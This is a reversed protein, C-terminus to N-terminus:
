TKGFKAKAAAICADKAEGALADCKEVAVKLDAENMDEAAAKRATGVEKGLKASALGKAQKVDRDAKAVQRNFYDAGISGKTDAFVTTLDAQGDKILTDHLVKRAQVDAIAKM